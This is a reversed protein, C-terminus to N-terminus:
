KDDEKPPLIIPKELNRKPIFIPGNNKRNQQQGKPIWAYPAKEPYETTKPEEKLPEDDYLDNFGKGYGKGQGKNYGYNYGYGQRYGSWNQQPYVVKPVAHTCRKVWDQPVPIIDYDTKFVDELQLEKFGAFTSYRLKFTPKSAFTGVVMAIIRRNKEDNDDTGSFFAGMSAHSHATVVWVAKKCLEMFEEDKAIDYESSGGTNIQPPVYVFYKQEEKDWMIHASAESKYLDYISKFFSVVESLISMPIRGYKMAFGPTPAPNRLMGPKDVKSICTYAEAKTVEFIGESSVVYSLPVNAEKWSEDTFVKCFNNFISKM